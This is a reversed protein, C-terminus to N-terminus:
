FLLGWKLLKCWTLIDMVVCNDGQKRRYFTFSTRGAINLYNSLALYIQIFYLIYFYIQIFAKVSM